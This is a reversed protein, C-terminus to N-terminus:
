HIYDVPFLDNMCRKHQADKVIVKFNHKDHKIHENFLIAFM